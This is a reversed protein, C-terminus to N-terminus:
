VPQSKRVLSLIHCAAKIYNRPPMTSEPFFITVSASSWTFESNQLPNYHGGIAWSKSYIQRKLCFFLLHGILLQCVCFNANIRSCWEFTAHILIQILPLIRKFFFGSNVYIDYSCIFVLFFCIFAFIIKQFFALSVATNEM